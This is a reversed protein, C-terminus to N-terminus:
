NALIVYFCADQIEIAPRTRGQGCKQFPFYSLLVEVFSLFFYITKFVPELTVRSVLYIQVLGRQTVMVLGFESVNEM